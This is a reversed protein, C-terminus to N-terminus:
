KLWLNENRIETAERHFILKNDGFCSSFPKVVDRLFDYHAPSYDVIITTIEALLIARPLVSSALPSAPLFPVRPAMMVVKIMVLPFCRLIDGLRNIM